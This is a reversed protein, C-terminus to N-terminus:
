SCVAYYSTGVRQLLRLRVARVTLQFQTIITLYNDRILISFSIYQNM